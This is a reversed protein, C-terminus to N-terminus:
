ESRQGVQLTSNLDGIYAVKALEVARQLIEEHIEEDLECETIATKGNISTDYESLDAVIIPNPIRVYRLIYNSITEPYIVEIYPGDTGNFILRWAESKHPFKYPKKMLKQYNEYSIPISQIVKGDGLYANENLMFMVNNPIKFVQGRSDLLISASSLEELEVTEIVKSFDIQRKPSGDFGEKYKNGLPNFYNKMIEDQSKTLFVSVEYANLGPAANSTVNNYLVDFRDLFEKNNM